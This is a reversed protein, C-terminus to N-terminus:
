DGGKSLVSGTIGLRERRARSRARAERLETLSAQRTQEGRKKSARPDAPHEKEAWLRFLDALLYDGVAWGHGGLEVWIPADYPAHRLLNRIRRLTLRCRGDSDRRWHEALEIQYYRALTAEV